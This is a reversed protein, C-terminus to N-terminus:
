EFIDSMPHALPDNKDKRNGEKAFIGEKKERKLLSPHPSLCGWIEEMVGDINEFVDRGSFRLVTMGMEALVDDRTRDKAKGIESYHQGGDLEKVLNVKPCYFDVIYKEIVKVKQRYFQYARLQKRKLRLWLMNEADTMNKRLHQSLAKLPKDYSLM